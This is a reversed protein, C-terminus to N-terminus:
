CSGVTFNCLLLYACRKDVANITSLYEDNIDFVFRSDIKLALSLCM